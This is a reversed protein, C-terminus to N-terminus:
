HVAIIARTRPSIKDEIQRADLTYTRPDIAVFVPIGLPQLVAQWTGAFTFSTTIVEDGPRLDIGYLAAHIAATGSNFLLGTSRGVFTAWEDELAVSEPAGGGGLIERDLVGMVAANDEPRIDPWRRKLAEPVRTGNRSDMPPRGNKHPTV